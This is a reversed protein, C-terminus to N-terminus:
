DVGRGLPHTPDSHGAARAVGAPRTPGAARCRECQGLPISHHRTCAETVKKSAVAGALSGAESHGGGNQRPQGPGLPSYPYLVPRPRGVLTCYLHM